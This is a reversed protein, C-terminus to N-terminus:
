LRGEVWGEHVALRAQGGQGGDDHEGLNGRM